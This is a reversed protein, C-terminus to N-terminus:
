IMYVKEDKSVDCFIYANMYIFYEIKWITYNKKGSMYIHKTEVDVFMFLIFPIYIYLM